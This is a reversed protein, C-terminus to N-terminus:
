YRLDQQFSNFTYIYKFFFFFSMGIPKKQKFRGSGKGVNNLEDKNAKNFNVLLDNLIDFSTQRFKLGVIQRPSCLIRKAM